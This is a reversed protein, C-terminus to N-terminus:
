AAYSVRAIALGVAVGQGKRLREGFVPLAALVNVLPNLYYGMSAQLIQDNSVSWIYTGWNVSILTTSLVLLLVTKPQKLASFTRLLQGRFILVLTCVPVTWLARHALVQFPDVNDLEHWYLPFLAWIGFALLGFLLGTTAQKDDATVNASDTM